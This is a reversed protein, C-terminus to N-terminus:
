CAASIAPPVCPLGLAFAIPHRRFWSERIEDGDDRDQAGREDDAESPLQPSARDALPPEQRAPSRLRLTENPAPGRSKGTGNVSAPDSRPRELLMQDGVEGGNRELM